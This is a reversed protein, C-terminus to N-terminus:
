FKIKFEFRPGAGRGKTLGRRGGLINPGSKDNAYKRMGARVSVGKGLKARLGLGKIKASKAIKSLAGITGSPKAGPGMLVTKEGSAVTLNAASAERTGICFVLAM